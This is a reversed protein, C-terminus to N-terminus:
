QKRVTLIVLQEGDEATGVICCGLDMQFNGNVIDDVQVQAHQDKVEKLTNILESVTM